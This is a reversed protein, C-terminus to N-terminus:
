VSVESQLIEIVRDAKEETLGVHPVTQVLVLVPADCHEDNACEENLDMDDLCVYTVPEACSQELDYLYAHIDANRCCGDMRTIGVVRSESPFGPKQVKVGFACLMHSFGTLTMAKQHVLYRWASSIVIQVDPCTDIIRNLHIVKDPEITCFGSATAKHGNLVGDIDLFILKM